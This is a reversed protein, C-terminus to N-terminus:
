QQNAGGRTAQAASSCREFIMAAAGRLRAVDGGQIVQLRAAKAGSLLHSAYEKEVVAGVQKWASTFDGALLFVEPALAAGIMALGRGICEAQRRLSALAHTEGEGALRLLEEYTTRKEDPSEEALYRLAARSSGYMEWCGRRGCRCRPGEPNLTIHGFEGAMGREGRLLQGNALIGTGVGESVAVVVANRVGRLGGWWLESRLCTNAANEMEAQMGLSKELHAKIDYEPWKLNPAFILRQTAADVRGPLSVGIGQFNHEPLSRILAKTHEIVTQLALKPDRHLSQTVRCLLSGTLDVAGAVFFQPHLDIAICAMSQNVGIMVPHRGRPLAKLAGERVWGEATLQEIIASVTSRQLGSLRALGARSVPQHHRILEWLTERNIRRATESSALRPQVRHGERM